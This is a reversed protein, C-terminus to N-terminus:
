RANEGPKNIIAANIRGWRIHLLRRLVAAGSPKGYILSGKGLKGM